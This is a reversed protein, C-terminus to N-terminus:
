VRRSTTACPVSRRELGLRMTARAAWATCLRMTGCDYLRERVRGVPDDTLAQPPVAKGLLLAPDHQAFFEALRQLPRRGSLTDLVLGRVVTGADMDMETPVVHNRLGVL